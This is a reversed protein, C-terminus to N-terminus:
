ECMKTYIHMICLFMLLLTLRNKKLQGVKNASVSSTDMVFIEDSYITKKKYGVGPFLIGTRFSHKVCLTHQMCKGKIGKSQETSTLRSGLILPLLM